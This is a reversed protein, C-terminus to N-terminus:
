ANGRVKYGRATGGFGEAPQIEQGDIVPVKDALNLKEYKTIGVNRCRCKFHLPAWMRDWIPDDALFTQGDMERCIECERNDLIGVFQYAVIVDAVDPDQYFQWAGENYASMLNTRFVTELYGTSAERIPASNQLKPDNLVSFRFREFTWGNDIAELLHVQMAKLVTGSEVDALSFARAKAWAVMESYVSYPIPIRKGFYAYAEDPSLLTDLGRYSEKFAIWRIRERLTQKPPKWGRSRLDTYSDARGLLSGIVLGSSLADSIAQKSIGGAAATLLDPKGQGILDGEQIAKLLADRYAMLATAMALGGEVALSEVQKGMRETMEIVDRSYKAETFGQVGDPPQAGSLPFPNPAPAPASLGIEGEAKKPIGFHEHVWNQGIESAFGMEGLVKLVEPTVEATEKPSNFAAKPYRSTIYNHDVLRKIVQENVTGELDERTADDTRTKGAAHVKGLAYSGSGGEGVNGTLTETEIAQSMQKDCYDLMQQYGADGRRAAELLAFEVGEPVRIGTQSQITKLVDDLKDTFEKNTGQGPPTTATVLPSGFRELFVLWFKFGSKKFWIYWSCTSALGRGYPNEYKSDYVFHVFKERPMPTPASGSGAVTCFGDEKLTGFKDTLFRWIGPPKHHLARMPRKGAFDGDTLADDAWIIESVSFGMAIADLMERLDQKFTGDLNALNWKVFEAIEIDLPDDSAPLIEFPDKLIANKRATLRGRYHGDKLEMEEFFEIGFHQVQKDPNMTDFGLLGVLDYQGRVAAIEGRTIPVKAETSPQPM